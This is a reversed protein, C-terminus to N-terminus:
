LTEPEEEDLGEEESLDDLDEETDDDGVAGEDLSGIGSIGATEELEDEGEIHKLFDNDM